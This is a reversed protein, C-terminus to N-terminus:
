ERFPCTSYEVTFSISSNKASKLMTLYADPNMLCHQYLENYYYINGRRTDQTACAYKMRRAKQSVMRELKAKEKRYENMFMVMKM